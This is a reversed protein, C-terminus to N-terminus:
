LFEHWYRFWGFRDFCYLLFSATVMKRWKHRFWMHAGLWHWTHMEFLEFNKRTKAPWFCIEIVRLAVLSCTCYCAAKEEKLACNNCYVFFFMLLCNVCFKSFPSIPNWFYDFLKVVVELFFPQYVCFVFFYLQMGKRFSILRYQSIRHSFLVLM